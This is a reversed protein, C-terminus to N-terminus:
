EAVLAVMTFLDLKSALKERNDPKNYNINIIM